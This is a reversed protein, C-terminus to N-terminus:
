LVEPYHCLVNQRSNKKWDKVKFHTILVLITNHLGIPIQGTIM